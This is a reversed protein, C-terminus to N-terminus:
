RHVIKEVKKAVKKYFFKGGGGFFPYIHLSICLINEINEPFNSYKKPCSSFDPNKCFFGTFIQHSNPSIELDNSTNKSLFITYIEVSKSLKQPSFRSIKPKFFASKVAFELTNLVFFYRKKVGVLWAFFIVLLLCM